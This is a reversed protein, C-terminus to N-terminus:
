DVIFDIDSDINQIYVLLLYKSTVITRMEDYMCTIDDFDYTNYLVDKNYPIRHLILLNEIKTQIDKIYNIYKSDIIM